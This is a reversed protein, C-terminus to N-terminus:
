TSKKKLCFAAYSIKVHSSNLRTSKRDEDTVAVVDTPDVGVLRAASAAPDATTASALVFTVGPLGPPRVRSAGAYHEALRRLRRLVLSVHAGFVGRYAHCEDIVVYRLNALLRSWRQHQPLLAFHLYDPNTLVVDAHDRIWRREAFPTDGDCTAVRVDGSSSAALLQDLSARQDAALAKTPSLYLVSGRRTTTELRGPALPGAATDARVATLAPLWYALSKGSGTSTALVTHHGAWASEAAEVQHRWPQSVGLSRYGTVLAPDAWAPWEGHEGERGPIHEVHTLREARGSAALLTGLLEDGTTVRGTHCRAPLRSRPGQDLPRAS